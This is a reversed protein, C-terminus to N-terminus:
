LPFFPRQGTHTMNHQILYENRAFAKDCVECKFPKEKTHTKKHQTLTDNRSFSKDCIDCTFPREGTHVRMHATLESISRCPKNCVDCIHTKVEANSNDETHKRMHQQLYGIKKFM